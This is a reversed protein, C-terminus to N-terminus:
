ISELPDMSVAAVLALQGTSAALTKIVEPDRQRDLGFRNGLAGALWAGDESDPADPGRSM